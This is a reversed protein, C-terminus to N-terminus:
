PPSTLNMTKYSLYTHIPFPPFFCLAPRTAAKGTVTLRCDRGPLTAGKERERERGRRAGEPKGHVIYSNQWLCPNSFPSLFFSTNKKSFSRWGVAGEVLAFVVYAQHGPASKTRCYTLKMTLRQVNWFFMPRLSRGFGRRTDAGMWTRCSCSLLRFCSLSGGPCIYGHYPHFSSPRGRFAVSCRCIEEHGMVHEETALRAAPLELKGVHKGRHRGSSPGVGQRGM